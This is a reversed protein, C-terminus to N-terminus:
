DRVKDRNAEDKEELKKIEDELAQVRKDIEISM